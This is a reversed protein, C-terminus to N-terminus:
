IFWLYLNVEEPIHRQTTQYFIVLMKFPPDSTIVATTLFNHRTAPQFDVSEESSYIAAM